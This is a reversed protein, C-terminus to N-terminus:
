KGKEQQTMAKGIKDGYKNTNRTLQKREINVKSAPSGVERADRRFNVNQKMGAIGNVTRSATGSARNGGNKTGKIISGAMGVGSDRIGSGGQFWAGIVDPLTGLFSLAAYIAIGAGILGLGLQNMLPLVTSIFVGTLGIGLIMFFQEFVTISFNKLFNYGTKETEADGFTMFMFPAIAAFIFIKFYRVYWWVILKFFPLLMLILIIILDIYNGNLIQPM